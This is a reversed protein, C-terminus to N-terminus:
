PTEDGKKRDVGEVIKVPVGQSLRLQGDTVVKEAPRLGKEIVAENGVTREVVVPRYEVTLDPRVVFAYQGEQGTQVAQSPIVVAGPQSALTLVVNVFQGPWLAKDKNSFTAKLLITGTSPNVTNDLFTLEGRAIDDEQGPIMAEVALRKSAMYKKVEPLNKEPIFFDVYIPRIQKIVVLPNDNDNAKILNGQDVKVEGACGDIPSNIFCYELQLDADELAAEDAQVMASL